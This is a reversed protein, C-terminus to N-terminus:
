MIYAYVLILCWKIIQQQIATSTTIPQTALRTCFVFLKIIIQFVVRISLILLSIIYNSVYIIIAEQFFDCPAIYSHLAKDIYRINCILRPPFSECYIYLILIYNVPFGKRNSALRTFVFGIACAIGSSFKRM